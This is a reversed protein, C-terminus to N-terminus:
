IAALYFLSICGMFCYGIISTALSYYKKWGNEKSFKDFALTNLIMFGLIIPVIYRFDMTCGFPYKINFLLQALLQSVILVGAIIKVEFNEKKSFIFYIIM